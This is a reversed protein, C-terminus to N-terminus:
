PQGGTHEPPPTGILQYTHFLLAARATIIGDPKSTTLFGEIFESENITWFITYKDADRVKQVNEPQPGETWTPGWGWCGESIVLDPDYEILCEPIDIGESTLQTKASRWADLVEETPIGILAKFKRGDTREALDKNLKAVLRASELVGEPTKEDLYVGELETENVMMDLAAELTPIQEGYRMLCSGRLEAFSLDHVSGNCFLGRVLSASFSPDHFLIPIGDRTVRVDVEAANSGTREALRISELSNPSVGCHDTAECAGHHAVTEFRHRWPKLERSWRLALPKTPIDNGDGYTGTLDFSTTPTPSEGNCFAQAVEPPDVYLRVLGADSRTPYQWYGEVVVRPVSQDTLCAAGLVSFGANKNTLVSVTGPSTRISATDGLLESGKNVNFFGEFSYLQERKLATGTRLLGGDPFGPISVELAEECDALLFPACIALALAWIKTNM